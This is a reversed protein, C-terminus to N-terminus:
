GGPRIEPRLRAAIMTGTTRLKARRRPSGFEAVSLFPQRAIRSITWRPSQGPKGAIAGSVRASIPERRQRLSSADSAHREAEDAAPGSRLGCPAARERGNRAPRRSRKPSRVTLAIRDAAGQRTEDFRCAVIYSTWQLASSEIPNRPRRMSRFLDQLRYERRGRPLRCGGDYGRSM